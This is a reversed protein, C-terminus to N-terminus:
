RSAYIALIAPKKRRCIDTTSITHVHVHHKTGQLPLLVFRVEGAKQMKNILVLDANQSVVCARINNIDHLTATNKRM